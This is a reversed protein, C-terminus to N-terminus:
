PIVFEKVGSSFIPEDPKDAEILIAETEPLREILALGKDKGMVTVTTSLADAELGTRALITVSSLGTAGHRTAPDLIHSVKQGEVFVFREYDGSTAVAWDDLRLTLQIHNPDTPDRLGIRWDRKDGIPRGFTRINGGLNVMGGIAGGQRLIEIARDVAYGKAIAGLDLRMGEVAFRVLREAPDLKLKEYGVKARAAALQAETPATNIRGAKRWMDVLPGITVDFGGDSLGSYEISTQLLSFLENSIPIKERFADRNVKSLESTEKFDSMAEDIRVLEAFGKEACTEAVANPAVAVVQAWTGMVGRFGTDVAVIRGAQYQRLGLGVAVVVLVPVVMRAIRSVSFGNRHEM